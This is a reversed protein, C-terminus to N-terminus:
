VPRSKALKDGYQQEYYAAFDGSKVKQWWWRNEVYWAVTKQM